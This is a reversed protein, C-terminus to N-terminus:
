GDLGHAWVAAQASAADIMQVDAGGVRIADLPESGDLRRNPTRLWRAAALGDAVPLLIGLVDVMGDMVGGEDSAFQWAPYAWRGDATRVGLVQYRRRRGDLSQRTLNGLRRAAGESRYVPGLIARWPHDEVPRAMLAILDGALEDASQGHLDLAPPLRRAFADVVEQRETLTAM